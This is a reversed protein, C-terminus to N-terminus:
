WWISSLCGTRWQRCLRPMWLRIELCLLSPGLKKRAPCSQCSLWLTGFTQNNKAGLVKGMLEDIIYTLATIQMFALLRYGLQRRAQSGSSVQTSTNTWVVTINLKLVNWMKYFEWSIHYVLSIGKKLFYFNIIFLLWRLLDHLSYCFALEQAKSISSIPSLLKLNISQRQFCLLAPVPSILFPFSTTPIKM